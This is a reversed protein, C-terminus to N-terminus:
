FAVMMGLILMEMIIAIGLFLTVRNMILSEGPKAQHRYRIAEAKKSIRKKILDPGITPKDNDSLKNFPDFIIDSEICMIVASKRLKGMGEFPLILKNPADWADTLEDSTGKVVFAGDQIDLERFAVTFDDYFMLQTRKGRTAGIWSDFFM